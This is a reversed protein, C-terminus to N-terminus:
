EGGCGERVRGYGLDEVCSQQGPLYTRYTNSSREADNVFRDAAFAPGVMAASVLTLAFGITIFKTM